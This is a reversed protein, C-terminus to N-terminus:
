PPGVQAGGAHGIGVDVVLDDGGAPGQPLQPADAPDGEGDGLAGDLAVGAVAGQLVADEGGEADLRGAPCM